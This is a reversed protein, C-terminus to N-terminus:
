QLWYVVSQEQMFEDAESGELMALTAILGAEVCSGAAVTVSNPADMVPWGTLPNLVHPYRVGDRLLYRKTNGSTALGGKKLQVLVKPANSQLESIADVGVNWYPISLPAKTACLDGGFNVLTPLETHQTLLSAARDVAYEKGIGGFDIEMGEAMRFVPSNWSVKDWGISSLMKRAASPDPVNDSGDFNWIRRLVGSTLDFKGDSLQYALAGFDLLSATEEDVTVSKGEATNLRHIVNDNRYRSFTKEIRWAEEAAIETLLRLETNTATDVLVECDSAMARFRGALGSPTSVIDIKGNPARM